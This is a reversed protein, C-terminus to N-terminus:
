LLDGCKGSDMRSAEDIKMHGLYVPTSLEIRDRPVVNGDMHSESHPRCLVSM